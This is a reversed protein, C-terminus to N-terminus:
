APYNDGVSTLIADPFLFFQTKDSGRVAGGSMASTFTSLITASFSIPNNCLQAVRPRTRVFRQLNVHVRHADHVVNWKLPQQFSHLLGGFIECLNRMSHNAVWRITSTPNRLEKVQIMVLEINLIHAAKFLQKRCQHVQTRTPVHKAGSQM